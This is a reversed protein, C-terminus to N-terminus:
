SDTAAANVVGVLLWCARADFRHPTTANGALASVCGMPKVVVLLRARRLPPTANGALASVYGM